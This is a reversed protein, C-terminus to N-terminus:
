DYFCDVGWSGPKQVAKWRSWTLLICVCTGFVVLLHVCCSMFVSRTNWFFESRWKKSQLTCYVQDLYIGLKRCIWKNWFRGFTDFWIAISKWWMVLAIYLNRPFFQVRTQAKSDKVVSNLQFLSSPMADQWNGVDRFGARWDSLAVEVFPTVTTWSIELWNEERPVRLLRSHDRLNRVDAVAICHIVQHVERCWSWAKASYSSSGALDLSVMFLLFRSPLRLWILDSCPEGNRISSPVSCVSRFRGYKLKMPFSTLFYVETNGLRFQYQMEERLQAQERMDQAQCMLFKWKTERIFHNLCLIFPSLLPALVEVIIWLLPVFPLTDRTWINWLAARSCHSSSIYHPQSHSRQAYWSIHIVAESM